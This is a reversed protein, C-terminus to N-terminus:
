RVRWAEQVAVTVWAKERPEWERVPVRVPECRLVSPDHWAFDDGMISGPMTEPEPGRREKSYPEHRLGCAEVFARWSGFANRIHSAGPLHEGTALDNYLVYSLGLDGDAYDWMFARIREFVDPNRPCRAEHGAMRGETVEMGCYCCSTM